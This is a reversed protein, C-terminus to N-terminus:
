ELHKLFDALTVRGDKDGMNKVAVQVMEESPEIGLSEYLKKLGEKDVSGV